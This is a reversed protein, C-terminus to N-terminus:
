CIASHPLVPLSTAIEPWFQEFGQSMGIHYERKLTAMYGRDGGYLDVQVNLAMDGSPQFGTFDQLDFVGRIQFFPTVEWIQRGDYGANSILIAPGTGTSLRLSVRAFGANSSHNQFIFGARHKEGSPTPMRTAQQVEFYIQPERDRKARAEAERRLRMTEVTYWLIVAATLALVLIEGFQPQILKRWVLVVALALLLAGVAVVSWDAVTRRSTM